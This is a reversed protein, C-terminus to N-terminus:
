RYLFFGSYINRSLVYITDYSVRGNLILSVLIFKKYAELMIYSMTLAPTSLAVEYFYLAREYNKMATYIM